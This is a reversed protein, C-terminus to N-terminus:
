SLMTSLSELIDLASLESRSGSVKSSAGSVAERGTDNAETRDKVPSDTEVGRRKLECGGVISDVM